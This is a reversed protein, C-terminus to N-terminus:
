IAPKGPAVAASHSLTERLGQTWGADALAWVPKGGFMFWRKELLGRVELRGLARSVASRAAHVQATTEFHHGRKSLDRQRSALGYVEALVESIVLRGGEGKRALLVLIDKQLGSLGRGM